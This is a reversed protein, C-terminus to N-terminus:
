LLFDTLQSNSHNTSLREIQTIRTARTRCTGRSLNQKNIMVTATLLSLEYSNIGEAAKQVVKTSICISIATTKPAKREVEEYKGENQDRKTSHTCFCLTIMTTLRGVVARRSEDLKAM